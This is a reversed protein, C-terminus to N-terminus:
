KKPDKTAQDQDPDLETKEDGTETGDSETYETWAHLLWAPLQDHRHVAVRANPFAMYPELVTRVLLNGPSVQIPAILDPRQTINERSQLYLPVIYNM